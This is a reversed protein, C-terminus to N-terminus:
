SESKVQKQGKRALVTVGRKGFCRIIFINDSYDDFVPM